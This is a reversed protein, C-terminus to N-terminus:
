IKGALPPIQRITQSSEQSSFVSDISYKRKRGKGMNLMERILLIERLGNQTLHKGKGMMDAIECFLMFNNKKSISYLAYKQFYPIVSDIIDSPKTVDYSHVNDLKRVKIIGCHLTDRLLFLLSPDKQSVNFSLVVQWGVRYDNKKRLSVNFSGEGEVFGALFYGLNEDDLREQQNDVSSVKESIM